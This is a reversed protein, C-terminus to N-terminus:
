IFSCTLATRSDSNGAVGGSLELLLNTKLEVPDLGALLHKVRGALAQVRAEAEPLGILNLLDLAAELAVM